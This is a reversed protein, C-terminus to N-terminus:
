VLRHVSRKKSCVVSRMLAMSGLSITLLLLTDGFDPVDHTTPGDVELYPPLPTPPFEELLPPQLPTEPLFPPPLIDPRNEDTNVPKDPVREPTPSQGPESGEDDPIEVTGDGREPTEAHPKPTKDPYVPSALFDALPPISIPLEDVNPVTRALLEPLFVGGETSRADPQSDILDTPKQAALQGDHIETTSRENRSTIEALSSTSPSTSTSLHVSSIQTLKENIDLPNTILSGDISVSYNEDIGVDTEPPIVKLLYGAGLVIAVLSLAIRRVNRNM